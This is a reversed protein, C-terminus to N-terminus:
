DGGKNKEIEEKLKRIEEYFDDSEFEIKDM